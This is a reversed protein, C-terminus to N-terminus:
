KALAVFKLMVDFHLTMKDNSFVCLGLETGFARIFAM